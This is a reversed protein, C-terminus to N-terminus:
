GFSVWTWKSISALQGSGAVVRFSLLNFLGAAMLLLGTRPEFGDFEILSAGVVVTAFVPLAVMRPLQSKSKESMEGTWASRFTVLFPGLSALVSLGIVFYPSGGEGYREHVVLQVLVGLVAMASIYFGLRDKTTLEM